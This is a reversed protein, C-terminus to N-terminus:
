RQRRAPPLVAHVRPELVRRLAREGGHAPGGEAGLEPGFDYFIESCPGCPGTEGMEWFNDKGLRQIRELPFGVADRWIAEAEDDTVHVTVWIRDGDIGLM